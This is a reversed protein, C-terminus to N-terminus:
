IIMIFQMQQQTPTPISQLLELELGSGPSNRHGRRTAVTWGWFVKYKPSQRSFLPQLVNRTRHVHMNSKSVALM